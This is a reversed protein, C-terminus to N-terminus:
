IYGKNDSKLVKMSAHSSLSNIVRSNVCRHPTEKNQGAFSKYFAM